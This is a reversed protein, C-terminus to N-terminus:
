KSGIMSFYLQFFGFPLCKHMDFYIRVNTMGEAGPSITFFLDLGDM